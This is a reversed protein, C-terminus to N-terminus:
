LTVGLLKLIQNSWLASILLGIILFPGLPITASLKTKRLMLLIIAFVGGIIFGIWLAVLIKPFGEVFGLLFVLTVDGYGMKKFKALVLFPLSALIAVLINRYGISLILGLIIMEDPVFGYILDSFFIVIFVCALGLLVPQLGIYAFVISTLLEVLPYQWSIKKNCYRCKGLLSIYSILPINDFWSLQRKCGPCISRGQWFKPAKPNNLRYILVNLFSGIILGYLFLSVIIM